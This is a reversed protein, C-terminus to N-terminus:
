FLSYMISVNLVSPSFATVAGFFIQQVAPAPGTGFSRKLLSADTITVLANGAVAQAAVIDTGGATTGIKVGGSVATGATEALVINHIYAGAPLTPSNTTTTNATLGVLSASFFNQGGTYGQALFSSVDQNAVFACGQGNLAYLTGSPVFTNAGGVTRAMGSGSNPLTPSCLYSGFAARAEHKPVLPAIAIAALAVILWHILKMANEERGPPEAVQRM